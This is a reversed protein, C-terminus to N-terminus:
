LQCIGFSQYHVAPKWFLSQQATLPFFQFYYTTMAPRLQRVRLQRWCLDLRGYLWWVRKGYLDGIRFFIYALEGGLYTKDGHTGWIVQQTNAPVESNYLMYFEINELSTAQAVQWHIACVYAGPDTLRIDMKFNRVSRLFNATNIYRFLHLEALNNGFQQTTFYCTCRVM